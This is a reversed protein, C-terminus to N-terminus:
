VWFAMIANSLDIGDELEAYLAVGLGAVKHQFELDTIDEDKVKQKRLQSKLTEM